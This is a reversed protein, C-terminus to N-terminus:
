SPQPLLGKSRLVERLKDLDDPAFARKPLLFFSVPSLFLLFVDTTEYAKQFGQWRMEGRSVNTEVEIAEDGILLHQELLLNPSKRFIRRVRYPWLVSRCLAAYLGLVLGLWVVPDHVTIFVLVFGTLLSLLIGVPTVLRSILGSRRLRYCYEKTAKFYEGESLQFRTGL